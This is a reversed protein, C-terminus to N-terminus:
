LVRFRIRCFKIGLGSRNTWGKQCLETHCHCVSVCAGHKTQLYSNPRSSFSTGIVLLAITTHLPNQFCWLCAEASGCCNLCVEKCHAIDHM